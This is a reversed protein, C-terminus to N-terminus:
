PGIDVDRVGRKKKEYTTWTQRFRLVVGLVGQRFGSFFFELDGVGWVM